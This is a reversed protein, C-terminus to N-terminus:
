PPPESSSLVVCVHRLARDGCMPESPNPSPTHGKIADAINGTKPDMAIAGSMYVMGGCQPLTRTRTFLKQQAAHGREPQVALVILTDHRALVCTAVAPYVLTMATRDM